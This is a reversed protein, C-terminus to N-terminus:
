NMSSPCLLFQVCYSLASLSKSVIATPVPACMSLDTRQLRTGIHGLGMSIPCMPSSYVPVSLDEADQDWHTGSGHFHSVHSQLACPSILGRSGPGLTDWSWPFPVCPVPTCMSFDTMQTRTGIHGLVMSVPCLPVLACHSQRVFPSILRKHGQGLTDWGWPFPVCHSQSVIPSSCVPLSWDEQGPWLTNWGCPFPVCCLKSLLPSSCLPMPGTGWRRQKVTTLFASSHHEKGQMRECHWMYKERMLSCDAECTSHM